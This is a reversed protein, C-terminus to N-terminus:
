AEPRVSPWGGSLGTIGEIELLRRKCALGSGFGGLSGDSALVRHCPVLIPVPNSGVAQGVAHAALPKGVLRALGGYSITSGFGVRRRLTSLVRRTFGRVDSLDLDLDPTSRRGAFYAEFARGIGAAALPGAPAPDAEAMARAAEPETLAVRRVGTPGFVVLLKGMPSDLRVFQPPRSM